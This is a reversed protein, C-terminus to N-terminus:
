IDPTHEEQRTPTHPAAASSGRPAMPTLWGRSLTVGLGSPRLSYMACASCPVVPEQQPKYESSRSVSLIHRRVVGASNPAGEGSPRKRKVCPLCPTSTNLGVVNLRLVMFAAPWYLRCGDGSPRQTNPMVFEGLSEEKSTKSM